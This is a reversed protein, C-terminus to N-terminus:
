QAWLGCSSFGTHRSGTSRLLLLWLLSFGVCRLLSYGGSVAVLSLRCVVVFVWCLWFYIFKFFFHAFSRFLCRELSSMCVALLYLFLHEVASIMLSSFILVVILYWRVATPIATILFVLTIYTSNLIHLFPFGQVDNTPIYIPAAM